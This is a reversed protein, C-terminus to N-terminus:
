AGSNESGTKLRALTGAWDFRDTRQSLVVLGEYVATGIHALAFRAFRVPDDTMAHHCGACLAFVNTPEYRTRIFRRSLIHATQLQVAPPSRHCNQCEGRARVIEGLLVDCKRKIGKTTGVNRTM